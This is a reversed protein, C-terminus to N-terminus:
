REVDVLMPTVLVVDEGYQEDVWDQLSGDDYVVDVLVHGDLVYGGQAGPLDDGVEAAIRELEASGNTEEPEPLVPPDEALVGGGTRGPVAEAVTLATGDWTGTVTFTGWRIDGQSEYAGKQDTWDWGVLEPGGCQPPWSEAVPGLCVEPTGIDMVTVPGRTTVLGPAAPVATPPGSGPDTATAGDETGCAALLLLAALLLVTRM